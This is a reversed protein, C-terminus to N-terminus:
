DQAESLQSLPENKTIKAANRRDKNVEATTAEPGPLYLEGYNGCAAVLTVVGTSALLASIKKM